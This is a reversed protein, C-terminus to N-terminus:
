LYVDCPRGVKRYLGIAAHCYGSGASHVLKRKGHIGSAPSVGIGDGIRAVQSERRRIRTVIQGQGVGTYRRSIQGEVKRRGGAVYRQDVSRYRSAVSVDSDLRGGSADQIEGRRGVGRFRRVDRSGPYHR